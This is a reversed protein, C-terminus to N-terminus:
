LFVLYLTLIALLGYIVIASYAYQGNLNDSAIVQYHLHKQYFNIISERSFINTLVVISLFIFGLTLLGFFVSNFIITKKYLSKNLLDNTEINEM